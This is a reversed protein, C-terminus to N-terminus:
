DHHEDGQHGSGDEFEHLTVKKLYSVNPLTKIGYHGHSPDAGLMLYARNDQRLRAAMSRNNNLDGFTIANTPCAQQCATQLLGDTVKKGQEKATHKADRIRQYCFNCKEMIGRTRVTVDPNLARLNRDVKREGIVNWKHTYWNFRRVKYPCANACYRTGICRNYTQANIGEPDHTTAYVPCVAECPAHNCHQCMVPQVTVDPNNVDGRFYRDLRIWHMERGMVIEDRGIQPVNNEQACAVMCSSCGTCATLDVSMGWRYEVGVDLKPYLDPVTDLDVTKTMDTKAKEMTLTKVIDKRNAIDNHKQQYALRYYRGTREVTVAQVSTCPDGTLPDERKSYLQLPDVGNNDTIKSIGEAHGNGRPVVICNPHLGPLPYVAAEISSGGPGTIKLVDNRRLGMAKVKEPNMAVWSDWAITTMSDGVEQLVPRSAGIGDRLRTDLNSLLVFEGTEPEKYKFSANLNSLPRVSQKSLRGSFGRRLVANFFVDFEVQGALLKHIGDWRERLFDGISM